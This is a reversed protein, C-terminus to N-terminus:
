PNVGRARWDALIAAATPLAGGTAEDIQKDNHTIRPGLSEAVAIYTGMIRGFVPAKRRVLDVFRPDAAIAAANFTGSVYGAKVGLAWAAVTQDNLPGLFRREDEWAKVLAQLDRIIPPPWPIGQQKLAEEVHQVKAWFAQFLPWLQGPAQLAGPLRGLLHVLGTNDPFLPM